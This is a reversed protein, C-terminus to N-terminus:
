SIINLLNMKIIGEWIGTWNVIRYIIQILFEIRYTVCICSRMIRINWRLSRWVYACAFVHTPKWKKIDWLKSCQWQAPLAEINLSAHLRSHVYNRLAKQARTYKAHKLVWHVISFGWARRNEGHSPICAWNTVDKQGASWFARRM